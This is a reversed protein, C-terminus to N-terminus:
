KPALLKVSKSLASKLEKLNVPKVLHEDFGAELVAEHDEARGYGTLAILYIENRGYEQRVRRAIQYGDVGPLGIDLLAVDPEERRILELGECGDAAVQVQYGEMELLSALMKRADDSDEVLALRVQSPDHEVVPDTDRALRKATLPLYVTFDSGQDLGDSHAEITGEHLEILSRVLTLGVGMGSDSHELTTDSQVFMDFISDLLQAAIGRGDDRVQIVAQRGDRNLTLWINGGDPTYKIANTLLNEIIQLIRSRDAEIWLPEDTIELHVDHHHAAILPGVAEIAEKSLLTLDMVERRLAVKNQTVRSVDLLDDLLTAIQSSQRRIVGCPETVISSDEAVRSLMSAATLIAAMPNRLEHSLTALFRDRQVIQDRLSSELRKRDTVDVIAALVAFGEPTSIPSLRVDVPFESGDKRLGPLDLGTSMPRLRAQQFFDQRHGVHEERFRTPILLEVQQGLLEERDYGFIREVESNILTIEGSRNAMLMGSPAAEVANRFRAEAQKLSTIDILTMVVGSRETDGRYPLIRMLFTDGAKSRVEEDYQEGCSLVNSIKDQLGQCDITHVFGDIRRGIDAPILNFVEAMKPTFKRICLEEDLFITHVDTSLLLNDMDHTLETLEAIKKQYEANVTYLEENVSHLEENTSQLEENSALMEENTAQLEENSAELEEITAQLNEKTHSLEIELSDVRDRSAEALNLKTGPATGLLEASEFSVLTYSLGDRATSIPTAVLNVLVQGGDTHTRVDSFLVKKRERMARHIAGSAALKLDDRMMELVDLSPKGKRLRLFQSANGFTHVIERQENVVVSPPLSSELLQSFLDITQRDATAAALFGENHRSAGTGLSLPLRMDPPLRIDRRKRFIKWHQDLEDFENSIEGPSESPGLFLAGGTKLGFHFLCLSKKQAAPQLYILLNRCTVLDLRTFPADKIINHPAFVVMKRLETSVNYGDGNHTFYRELREPSVGAVAKEDYIGIGAKDLSTRHVDTAFIKATCPRGLKELQEHVAIALSYAEEGTACGAVWARFEDSAPLSKLLSPIVNTQLSRFAEEDRFFGTVGILLDGYLADLEQRDDRLREIYDELEATHSLELRRETRRLVTAPKYHSFDIGYADRLLRFVPTMGASDFETESAFDRSRPDDIHKLLLAPMEDPSLEENVIGTEMASRPMGDFKATEQSQALVLGGVQHVDCIGRSGDSGTGSLVIAIARSGADRALSRFFQDIPLTLEDAPGKDSLLLRGDSIIMEKKPPMLYINNAAIPMGDHAACIPLETWRALLEDMLSKFDPSLHQVVVFSMGTDTPMKEFLRELAELGGASAGIGVVFPPSQTEATRHATASGNGSTEM